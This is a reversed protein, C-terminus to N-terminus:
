ADELLVTDDVGFGLRVPQGPAPLAALAAGNAIGRASVASGDALRAQLLFSDGQYVVASVQAALLNLGDGPDDPALV